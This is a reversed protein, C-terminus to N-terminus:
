QDEALIYKVYMSYIGPAAFVLGGLTTAGAAALLTPSDPINSSATLHMPFVAPLGPVIRYDMVFYYGAADPTGNGTTFDMVEQLYSGGVVSCGADVGAGGAIYKEEQAADAAFDPAFYPTASSPAYINNNGANPAAAPANTQAVLPVFNSSYDFNANVAGTQNDCVTNTLIPNAPFQRLELATVPITAVGGSNADYQILQDMCLDTQGQSLGAAWLDFNVSSSVKLVNAGYKIIGGMYQDIDTFNFDIQDPGELKLQLVPQLDMNITVNQESLIQANASGFILAGALLSFAIKKM